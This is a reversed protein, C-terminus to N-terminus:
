VDEELGPQLRRGRKSAVMKAVVCVLVVVALWILLAAPYYGFDPIPWSLFMLLGSGLFIFALGRKALAFRPGLVEPFLLLLLGFSLSVSPGLLNNLVAPPPHILIILASWTWATGMVISKVAATRTSPDRRTLVVYLNWITLALM